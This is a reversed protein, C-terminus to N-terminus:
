TLSRYIALTEEAVRDWSYKNTIFSDQRPGLEGCNILRRLEDRLSDVDNTRFLRAQDGNGSSVIERNEPIDSAIVPLGFSLAEILVIPLGEFDSPLVFAGANSFLRIVADGFLPGTMIVRDDCSALKRLPDVIEPDGEGVIVLKLDTEVQRFAHLLVDVRKCGVLRGVFLVYRGAEIGGPASQPELPLREPRKAGNPIYAPTRGFKGAFHAQMQKSVVVPRDVVRGIIREGLKLYLKAVGRWKTRRYELAHCTAVSSRRAMWALVAMVSPGLAHFHIVDFDSRIAKMTALLSYSLMESSTGSLSGVYVVRMGKYSPPQTSYRRRMAYVTVSHGHEVLRQGIEEVATEVGSYNAPVGRLGIMAIHLPREKQDRREAM